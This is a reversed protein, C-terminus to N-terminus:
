ICVQTKAQEWARGLLRIWRTASAQAKPLASASVRPSARTAQTFVWVTHTDLDVFIDTWWGGRSDDVLFVYNVLFVANNGNGAADTFPAQAGSSCGGKLKWKALFEIM